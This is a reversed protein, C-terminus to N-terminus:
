ADAQPSPNPATISQIGVDGELLRRLGTEIVEHLLQIRDGLKGRDETKENEQLGRVKALLAFNAIDTPLFVPNHLLEEHCDYCLVVRKGM